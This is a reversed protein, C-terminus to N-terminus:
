VALEGAKLAIALAIRDALAVALRREADRQAVRTAYVTATASYATYSEETGGLVVEATGAPTLNWAASGTLNYRTTANDPAVALGIEATSLTVDLVYAPAPVRRGFHRRLADALTYTMRDPLENRKITGVAIRGDLRSAPSADGYLPRFGCGGLSLGGFAAAALRILQRRECSSM